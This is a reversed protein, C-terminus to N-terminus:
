GRGTRSPEEGQLLGTDKGGVGGGKCCAGGRGVLGKSRGQARTGRGQWFGAGGCGVRNPGAGRGWGISAGAIMKSGGPWCSASASACRPHCSRHPCRWRSRSRTQPHGGHPPSPLHSPPAKPLGQPGQPSGPPCLLTAQPSRQPDQTSMSPAPPTVSTNPLGEPSM